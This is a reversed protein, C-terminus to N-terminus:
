TSGVFSTRGRWFSTIDVPRLFRKFNRDLSNVFARAGDELTGWTPEHFLHQFVVIDFRFRMIAQSATGVEISYADRGLQIGLRTSKIAEPDYGGGIFTVGKRTRGGETLPGVENRIRVAGALPLLSARSMGTDIHIGTIVARVFDRIGQRWLASLRSHARQSLALGNLPRRGAAFFGTGSIKIPM